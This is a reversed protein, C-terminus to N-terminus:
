GEYEEIPILPRLSVRQRNSAVADQFDKNEVLKAFMQEVALLFEEKSDIEMINRGVKLTGLYKGDRWKSQNEFAFGGVESEDVRLGLRIPAKGFKEALLVLHSDIYRFRDKYSLTKAGKSKNIFKKSQSHIRFGREENFSNRIYESFSVDGLGVESADVMYENGIRDLACILENQARELSLKIKAKKYSEKRENILDQLRTRRVEALFTSADTNGVIKEVEIAEDILEILSNYAYMDALYGSKNADSLLVSGEITNLLSSDRFFEFENNEQGGYFQLALKHMERFADVAVDLVNEYYMKRGAFQISAIKGNKNYEELPYIDLFCTKGNPLCYDDYISIEVVKERIGMKYTELTRIAKLMNIKAQMVFKDDQGQNKGDVLRLISYLCDKALLYERNAKDVFIGKGCNNNM